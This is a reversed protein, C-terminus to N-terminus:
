DEENETWWWNFLKNIIEQRSIPHITIIQIEDSIIDYAVAMLRLKKNYLLKRVAIFHGTLNDFYKTDPKILIKSPYNQPIERQELRIKLHPQLVIKVLILRLM